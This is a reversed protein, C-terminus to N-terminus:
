VRYSAHWPQFVPNWPSVTDAMGAEEGQQTKAFCSLRTSPLHATVPHRPVSSSPSSCSTAHSSWPISFCCISIGHSIQTEIETCRTFFSGAICSVCTWDRPPSSGRCFPIAVWEMAQLIGHVSSGPQSYDVPNCLTPCSQAVLVEKWVEKTDLILLSLLRQPDGGAGVMESKSYCWDGLGDSTDRVQCNISNLSSPQVKLQKCFEPSQQVASPGLGMQWKDDAASWILWYFQWSIKKKNGASWLM